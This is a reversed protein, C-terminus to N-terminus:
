HLNQHWFYLEEELAIRFAELVREILSEDDDLSISEWFIRLVTPSFNRHFTLLDPFSEDLALLSYFKELNNELRFFSDLAVKPSDEDLILKLEFIYSRFFEDSELVGGKKVDNVLTEIRKSDEYDLSNLSSKLVKPRNFKSYTNEEM